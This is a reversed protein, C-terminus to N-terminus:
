LGYEEALKVEIDQVAQSMIYEMINSLERIVYVMEQQYVRRRLSFHRSYIRSGDSLRNLNVRIAIHAFTIDESDYEELAEIVGTLEYDPRRGEDFRRVVSSVLNASTLHKVVLDTIMRTPRVAWVRYVYYRLEFPSLRYVIQPRNYAEEISFERVRIVYPYPDDLSRNQIPPPIYNLTYYNKIPVRACGGIIIVCFM